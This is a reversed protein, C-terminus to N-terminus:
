RRSVPGSLELADDADAEQCARWDSGDKCYREFLGDPGQRPLLWNVWAQGTARMDLGADHAVLLAKMAFYPDVADGQHHVTIAGQADQYGSLDLTSDMARASPLLLSFAQLMVVGFYRCRM